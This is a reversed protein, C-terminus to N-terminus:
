RLSVAGPTKNSKHRKSICKHIFSIHMLNGDITVTAWLIELCEKLISFVLLGQM